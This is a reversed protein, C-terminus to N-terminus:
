VRLKSLVTRLRSVTAEIQMIIDTNVFLISPAIARAAWAREGEKKKKTEQAEALPTIKISKSPLLQLILRQGLDHISRNHSETSTILVHLAYTFRSFVNYLNWLHIHM